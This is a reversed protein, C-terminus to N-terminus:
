GGFGIKLALPAIPSSDIVVRVPRQDDSLTLDSRGTELRIDAYLETRRMAKNEDAEFVVKPKLDIAPVIRKEGDPYTISVLASDLTALASRPLTVRLSLGAKPPILRMLTEGRGVYGGAVTRIGGVTCACPSDVTVDVGNKDKISAVVQGDGVTKAGILFDVQGAAPASVPLSDAEIMASAAKYVYARAYVNSGVTWTLGLGLAALASLGILRTPTVGTKMINAAQASGQDIGRFVSDYPLTEGMVYAEFIRRLIAIQTEGINTYRFGVRHDQTRQYRVEGISEFVLGVGELTYVIRLDLLDGAALPAEYGLISMGGLSWDFVEYAAGDIICQAPIRFRPHQRQVEAEHVIRPKQHSEAAM